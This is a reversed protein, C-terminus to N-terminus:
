SRNQHANENGAITLSDPEALLFLALSRLKAPRVPKHLLHCGNASVKQLVELATDGSILIAPVHRKCVSEVWVIVELGTGDPLRYDCILLDFDQGSYRERAEQQSAAARVECGWEMLMGATSTRVLEDDDVLLISVGELNAPAIGRHSDRHEVLPSNDALRDASDASATKLPVDVAFVSGKGPMSRLSNPHDLLRSLREVIALGLGLGKGRDREANSLQVFERFIDKQDAPPIGIGNDRVEIRLNDGRRRCAVLVRGHRPTYRLANNLLNFLIRELLMPDSLVEAGTSRVRLRIDKDRAVPDYEQAMRNLLMNIQFPRLQPLVIGADLKSIDLLGSLLDLFADASEEIQAVIRIQAPTNVKGRLQGIFLGLAHIPQRLDHSAAALFRSKDRSANEAEEKKMRLETTAEAIRSKLTERDFKLREAMRNIGSALDNLEYIGSKSPVRTDLAGSGIDGVARTMDMIPFTIRRAAWSAVLFTVALILMTALSSFLLVEKKQNNLHLKSIQIVVAGLPKAAPTFSISARDFEAEDLDIQTAIIPEYLLLTEDDQYLPTEPGIKGLMDANVAAQGGGALMQHSEDLVALGVVDKRIFVSDVERKLLSINGSLVAYECSSALQLALLKSREIMAKDMDGFRTYIDHSKMLVAMVLVPILSVLLTQREIGYSKM